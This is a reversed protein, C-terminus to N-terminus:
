ESPVLALRFGINSRSVPSRSSRHASSCGAAVNNWSGGRSVHYFGASPGSPDLGGQLKGDFFDACWEWVNGHMDHLGWANAQRTGVDHPKGESNGSYWAVEGVSGGSYLGTEGARCAYEWQAETPLASKWGSPMVGSDNIKKIFEQADFWSVKEVPLNVGKSESPNNGMVAQWQAQTVETRGMWFGKSLTVSVQNQNDPTGMIFVGSPCFVFPMTAKGPLPLSTIAGVRGAGLEATLKAKANQKLAVPVAIFASLAVFAVLGGIRNARLNKEAILEKALVTHRHSLAEGILVSEAYAQSHKEALAAADKKRAPLLANVEALLRDREGVLARKVQTADFDTWDRSSM